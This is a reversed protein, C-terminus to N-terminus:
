QREPVREQKQAAKITRTLLDLKEATPREQMQLLNRAYAAAKYVNDGAPVAGQVQQLQRQAERAREDKLKLKAATRSKWDLAHGLVPAAALLGM